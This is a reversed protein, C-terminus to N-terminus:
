HLGPQYDCFPEEDMVNGTAAYARARCGSCVNTYECRACKGQLLEPQRLGRFLPSDEWITQMTQSRLNGAELPLYGCPQVVGKHSVFCVGTGALCGKTHASMGHSEVTVKRGEAKAQQRLIRYYHPACTARVEFDDERAQSAFWSLMEEYQDADLMESDAIELGCGVPVLMFLHLAVAGARRAFHFTDEMQHANHRTITTNFQVPIGEEQLFRVGNLAQEHSGPIGRFGDHVEPTAGDFSVSVRRIGSERIRAAVQRDVLTGNTALAVPLGREVAYGAIEFLDPRYLPEGGTLILVPKAFAAIQDIVAFAEATSLEDNSRDPRADARCHKCKLNCGETLEWFILRPIAKRPGAPHAGHQSHPHQPM